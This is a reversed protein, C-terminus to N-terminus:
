YDNKILDKAEQLTVVHGYIESSLDMAKLTLFQQQEKINHNKSIFFKYQRRYAEVEQAVRFATDTLYKAWWGAPDSGQQKQHTREHVKVHEPLAGKYRATYITDGYTFVLNPRNAIDFVKIIDQYNPPYGYVVKM